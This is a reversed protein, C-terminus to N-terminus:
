KRRGLAGLKGWWRSLASGAAVEAWPDAKKEKKAPKKEDAAKKGAEEGEPAQTAQAVVGLVVGAVTLGNLLVAHGAAWAAPDFHFWDGLLLLGTELDASLAPPTTNM